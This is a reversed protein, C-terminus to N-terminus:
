NMRARCSKAWFYSHFGIFALDSAIMGAKYAPFVEERSHTSRTNMAIGVLVPSISVKMLRQFYVQSPSVDLLDAAPLSVALWQTGVKAPFIAAMTACEGNILAYSGIGESDDNRALLISLDLRGAYLSINETQLMLGELYRLRETNIEGSNFAATMPQPAEREIVDILQASASFSASSQQMGFKASAAIAFEELSVM